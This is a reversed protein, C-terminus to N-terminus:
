LPPKTEAHKGSVALSALGSPLAVFERAGSPWRCPLLETGVAGGLLLRQVDCESGIWLGGRARLRPEAPAAELEAVTDKMRGETM